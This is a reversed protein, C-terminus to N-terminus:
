REIRARALTLTPLVCENFCGIGGLQFVSEQRLDAVLGPATM